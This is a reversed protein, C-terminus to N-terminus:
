HLCIFRRFDKFGKKKLVGFTIKPTSFLAFKPSYSLENVISSKHGRNASTQRVNIHYPSSSPPMDPFKRDQKRKLYNTNTCVEWFKQSVPISQRIIFHRKSLQMKIRLRSYVVKFSECKQMRLWLRLRCMISLRVGWRVLVVVVVGVGGGSSFNKWVFMKCNQIQGM